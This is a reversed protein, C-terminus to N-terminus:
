SIAVSKPSKVSYYVAILSASSDTAQTFVLDDSPDLQRNAQTESLEPIQTGTPNMTVNAASLINTSGNKQILLDANAGDTTSVDVVISQIEIGFGDAGQINPVGITTVATQSTELQVFLCKVDSAQAFDAM